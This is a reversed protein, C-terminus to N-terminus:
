QSSEYVNLFYTNSYTLQVKYMFQHSIYKAKGEYTNKQLSISNIVPWITLM